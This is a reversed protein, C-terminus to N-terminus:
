TWCGALCPRTVPPFRSTGQSTPQCLNSLRRSQLGAPGAVCALIFLKGLFDCRQPWASRFLLPSRAPGICARNSLSIRQRRRRELPSHMASRSKRPGSLEAVRVFSSCNLFLRNRLHCERPMTGRGRRRDTGIEIMPPTSNRSIGPFVRQKAVLAQNRVGEGGEWNKGACKPYLM